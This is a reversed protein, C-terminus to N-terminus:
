KEPGPLPEGPRNLEFNRIARGWRSLPKGKGPYHVAPHSAGLPRFRGAESQEAAWARDEMSPEFRGEQRPTPPRTPEDALGEYLPDRSADYSRRSM